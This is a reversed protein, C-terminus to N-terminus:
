GPEDGSEAAQALVEALRAAAGPAYDPTHIPFVQGASFHIESEGQALEELLIHALRYKEQRSLAQVVPLIDTIPM